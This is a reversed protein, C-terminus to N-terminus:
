DYGQMSSKNALTSNAKLTNHHCQEETSLDAPGEMRTPQGDGKCQCLPHDNPHNGGMKVM